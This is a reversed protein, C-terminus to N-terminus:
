AAYLDVDETTNTLTVTTPPGLTAGGTPSSLTLNVTEDPELTTDGLVTVTSPASQALLRASSDPTALRTDTHM